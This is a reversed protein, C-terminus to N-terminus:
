DNNTFELFSPALALACLSSCLLNWRFMLFCKVTCSVSYQCLNGLSFTSEQRASTWCCRSMIWLLRSQTNRSSCLQLLHIWLNM